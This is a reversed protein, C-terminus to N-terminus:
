TIWDSVTELEWGSDSRHLKLTGGRWQADWIVYGRRRAQDLVFLPLSYPLIPGFKKRALDVEGTTLVVMRSTTMLSGFSSRDGEIFM